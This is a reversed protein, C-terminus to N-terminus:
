WITSCCLSWYCVMPRRGMADQLNDEPQRPLNLYVVDATNEVVKVDAGAPVEIGHEQLVARTDAMLRKKFAPDSWAKAVLRGFKKAADPQEWPEPSM